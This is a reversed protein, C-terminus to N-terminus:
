EGNQGNKQLKAKKHFGALFTKKQRTINKQISKNSKPSNGVVRLLKIVFDHFCM